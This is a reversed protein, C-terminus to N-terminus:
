GESPTFLTQQNSLGSEPAIPLSRKQCICTSVIEEVEIRTM